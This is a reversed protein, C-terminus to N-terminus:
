QDDASPPPKVLEVKKGNVYTDLKGNHLDKGSIKVSAGTTKNGGSGPIGIGGGVAVTAEVEGTKPHYFGEFPGVNSAGKFKVEDPMSMVFTPRYFIVEKAEPRGRAKRPNYEGLAQFHCELGRSVVNIVDDHPRDGLEEWQTWVKKPGMIFVVIGVVVMLVLAGLIIPTWSISVSGAEKLRKAKASAAANPDFRTVSPGVAMAVGSHAPVTFTNGCQPCKARKGAWEDKVKLAKGCNDCTVSIPM